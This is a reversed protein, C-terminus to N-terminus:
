LTSGIFKFFIGELRIQVLSRLIDAEIKLWSCDEARGVSSDFTIHTLASKFTIEVVCSTIYVLQM